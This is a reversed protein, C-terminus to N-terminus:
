SDARVFHFALGYLIMRGNLGNQAMDRLGESMGPDTHRVERVTKRGATVILVVGTGFEGGVQASTMARLHEIVFGRGLIGRM